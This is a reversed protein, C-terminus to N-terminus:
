FPAVDLSTMVVFGRVDQAATTPLMYGAQFACRFTHSAWPYLGVLPMAWGFSGAQKQYAIGTQVGAFPLLYRRGPSRELTLDFGLSASFMPDVGGHTSGLVVADLYFRGHSPIWLSGQEAYSFFVLELGGGAFAGLNQLDNPVFLSAVAGPVFIQHGREDVVIRVVRDEAEGGQQVVISLAVTGVDDDKPLWHVAISDAEAKATASRPLGNLRYTAGGEQRPVHLEVRDGVSVEIEREVVVDRVTGDHVISATVLVPLM